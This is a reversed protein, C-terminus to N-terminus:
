FSIFFDQLDLESALDMKKRLRYRAKKVGNPSIRLINAIDKSSLNMKLLSILRWEYNSFDGYQSTLRDMFDQHISSFEKGFQEWEEDDIQDSNIMRSIKETTNSVDSDISSKLSGIEKDLNYLFENKSALQLVKSTLEKQKKILEKEAAERKEKEELNRKELKSKDEKRKHSILYIASIGVILLSVLVITLIKNRSARQASISKTSILEDNILEPTGACNCQGNERDDITKPNRDDCPTGAEPCDIYADPFLELVDFAHDYIKLQGIAGNMNQREDFGGGVADQDQGIIFGDSAIDLSGNIITAAGGKVKGDILATVYNGARILVINHWELDSLIGETGEFQYLQNKFTLLLGNNVEHLDNYAIILENSVRENAGSIINNFYKLGNLKVNFTMTFDSIGDISEGPIMIVDQANDGLVVASGYPTKITKLKSSTHCYYNSGSQDTINDGLSLDLIPNQSQFARPLAVFNNVPSVQSYSTKSGIVFCFLCLLIIRSLRM